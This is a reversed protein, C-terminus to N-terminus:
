IKRARGESVLKYLLKFRAQTRERKMWDLKVVSIKDVPVSVYATLFM